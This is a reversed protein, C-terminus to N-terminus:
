YNNIGMDLAQTFIQYKNKKMFKNSIDEHAINYM